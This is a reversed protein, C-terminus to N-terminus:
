ITLKLLANLANSQVIVHYVIKIVVLHAAIAMTIRIAGVLVTMVLTVM